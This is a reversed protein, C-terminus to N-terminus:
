SQTYFGVISMMMGRRKVTLAHLKPKRHLM